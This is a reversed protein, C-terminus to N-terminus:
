FILTDVFYNRNRRISWKTQPAIRSNTRIAFKQDVYRNCVICSCTLVFMCVVSLAFERFSRGPNPRVLTNAKFSLFCSHWVANHQKGFAPYFLLDFIRVVSWCLLSAPKLYNVEGVVRCVINTKLVLCCRYVLLLFGICSMQEINM